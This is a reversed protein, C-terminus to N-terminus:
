TELRLLPLDGNVVLLTRDPHAGFDDGAAQVAHGTGRPPDQRVFVLGRGAFAAEVEDAQHGIVVTVPDAGTGQVARLVHELLPVGLVPHLVKARASRMRTGKGAALILAQVASASM